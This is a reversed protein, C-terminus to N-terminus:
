FFQLFQALEVFGALGRQGGCILLRVGSCRMENGRGDFFMSFLAPAFRLLASCYVWLLRLLAVEIINLIRVSYSLCVLFTGSFYFLALFLLMAVAPFIGFITRFFAKKEITYVPQCLFQKLILIM